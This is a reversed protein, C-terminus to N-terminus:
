AGQAWCLFDDSSRSTGETIIEPIWRANGGLLALLLNKPAGLFARPSVSEIQTFTCFHHIKLHPAPAKKLKQVTNLCPGVELSCSPSWDSFTESLLDQLQAGHLQFVSTNGHQSGRQKALFLPIHQTHGKAAQLLPLHLNIPIGYYVYLLVPPSQQQSPPYGM